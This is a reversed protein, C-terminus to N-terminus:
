YKKDIAASKDMWRGSKLRYLFLIGRVNLEVCMAIWFGTLGLHPTLILALVIRVCWISSLNIISPVLTDGAGICSGYGVIAAAFMTEAFAEIRLVKAGLAVVDPDPSMTGILWPATIYMIISLFTMIGMGLSLTMKTFGRSLDKRGAGLSQGVLATSADAIGNGPMYCFSEATIAFSNAAIAINGLPAVIVTGAIHAGRMVINQVAMPLSIGMANKLCVRTPRFSGREHTIKLDESKFLLYGLMLIVTTLEAFGTGLAAGTVGLDAGPMTFSMGFPHLTRSPFILLFNFIVDLLCMSISLISPVKMNGSAQLMSAGMFEFQFAPMFASFIMFYMSADHSINEDGGLWHPLQRSIGMGILALLSSFALLCILAQRLVTRASKFDNAGILHAVQVSFGASAAGCFGGMLWVCTSVLGISAAPLAGLSGVMSADIYQMLVSSLQALIAPTSLLATLKLQQKGTMPQKNRILALLAEKSEKPMILRCLYAFQLFIENKEQM